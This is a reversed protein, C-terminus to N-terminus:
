HEISDSKGLKLKSIARKIQQVTKSHTHIIDCDPDADPVICQSTIDNM